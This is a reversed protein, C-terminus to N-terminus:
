GTTIISGTTEGITFSLDSANRISYRVDANRGDDADSALVRLVESGTPVDERVSASYISQSFGSPLYSFTM